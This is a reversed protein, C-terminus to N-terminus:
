VQQLVKGRLNGGHCAFSTERTVERSARALQDDGPAGRFTAAPLSLRARVGGLPSDELTVEGGYSRAISRAISLGLGAGGEDRARADDLRVWREFARERSEKEIGRGDDDIIVVVQDGERATAVQVTGSAHREANTVLNDIARQLVHLEAEVWNAPGDHGLLETVDVLQRHAPAGADLRALLLMDDALRGVREVDHLVDSAVHRWEEAQPPNALAVDLQARISAIPSRLEHAADAVFSRQQESARHLRELMRNLTEALRALEDDSEPVPLHPAASRSTGAVEDAAARLEDVPRLASGVALATAIAAALVILPVAIVVIRLLADLLTSVDTLSIASIVMVPDGNLTARTVVVRMASSGLESDNTTFAGGDARERVVAVPLIPVVRSASPTASRVTGDMAVVQAFLPQDAPVPLPNPLQDSRVLTSITTAEDRINADLADIRSHYFLTALGAAGSVLGLALVVTAVITLRLTLSRRGWWSVLRRRM